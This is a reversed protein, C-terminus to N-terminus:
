ASSSTVCHYIQLRIVVIYSDARTIIKNLIVVSPCLADRPTEGQSLRAEQKELINMM